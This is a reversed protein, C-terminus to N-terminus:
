GRDGLIGHSDELVEIMGKPKFSRSCELSASQIIPNSDPCIPCGPTSSQFRETDFEASKAIDLCPGPRSRPKCPLEHLREEESSDFNHTSAINQHKPFNMSIELDLNERLFEKTSEFRQLRSSEL